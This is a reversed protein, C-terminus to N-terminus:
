NKRKKKLFRGIIYATRFRYAIETKKDDFPLCYYKAFQEKPINIIYMVPEVLSDYLLFHSRLYNPRIREFLYGSATNDLIFREMMKRKLFDPRLLRLGKAIGSHGPLLVEAQFLLFYVCNRMREKVCMNIVYDWDFDNEYKKFLLATDLAYKLCLPKGFRRQHLALSFLSDEPSLRLFNKGNINIDRARQWVYPLPERGYRKFDLRLHLEVAPNVMAKKQRASFPVHCQKMIWYSESLGRLDIDYNASKLIDKSKEYDTERVLCDIDSMPRVPFKEYLDQLLAAGKIPLLGVGNSRFADYIDSYTELILQNQLATRCYIWSLVKEMDSPLLCKYHKAAVYFFPAIEHYFLLNNLLHWDINKDSLLSEFESSLQGNVIYRLAHSILTFERNNRININKINM